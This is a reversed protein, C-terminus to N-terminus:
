KYLSIGYKIRLRCVENFWNKEYEFLKQQNYMLQVPDQVDLTLIHYLYNLQAMHINYELPVIGLELYAFCNTTSSPTHLM